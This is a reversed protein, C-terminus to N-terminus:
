FRYEYAAYYFGGNFGFPAARRSYPFVGNSAVILNGENDIITGSRSRSIKTKEPKVDFLNQAGVKFIGYDGLDYSLQIDTLFEPDYTQKMGGETVSYKGYRQVWVSAAFDGYEYLASLAVRNKPQWDEIISRDTENFLSGPLGGPLNVSDIDTETVSGLLQLTLDGPMELPVDWTAVLDVGRTVTDVGNMFFQAAGVGAASLTDIVAPSLESTRSGLQGSVIIRDDVEIQYLDTTLSFSPTPQYVFGGSWGVSTEQDLEPIGVSRALASDNRYTGVEFPVLDGDPGPLFQTSVNNFYVQQMSPARFGSSVSARLSFTESIDLKSAIKGNFTDGFDSYSEYRLGPAVLLQEGLHIDSDAYLATAERTADVENGPRFGPFVQIGGTGGGPGDYDEYSYPEGAAIQYRDRKYEAGWALDVTELPISFDLNVTTLDLTLSGADARTPADGSFDFGPFAPYDGNPNLARNVWSANHSNRVEFDFKNSGHVVSLDVALDNEFEQRIGAGVSFDSVTTDILPLFGHPYGSGLPNRDFQNARRYFGGSLNTTRSFDAFGYLEGTGGGIPQTLNLAGTFQELEADGIRFNNRDFGREKGGPDQLIVQTGPPYLALLRDREPSDFDSLAVTETDPYQIVGTKGARNTRDRANYELALHLMGEGPLAFGDDISLSRREGDGEYTAGYLGRVAGDPGDKLVINIVGAVADSGYQASAGDRLVEIREIASLPIANMDTGANGRGVSGNVHILASGHRRKGNVLVLVQDPGMGRLTAPRVSDTGDSITSSSFNFSPALAQIARGVEIRGTRSLDEQGLLDVPVPSDAVSREGFRSGIVVLKELQVVDTEAPSAEPAEQGTLTVSSTTLGLIIALSRGLARTYNTHM